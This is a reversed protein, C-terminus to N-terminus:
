SMRRLYVIEGTFKVLEALVLSLLVGNGLVIACQVWSLRGETIIVSAGLAVILTTSITTNLTVFAIRIAKLEALREREDRPAEVDQPALIAVAIAIIIEAAVIGAVCTILLGLFYDDPTQGTAVGRAVTAFYYGYVGLTVALSIWARKERFSM